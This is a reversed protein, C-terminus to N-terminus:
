FEVENIIQSVCNNDSLWLAAYFLAMQPCLYANCFGWWKKEAPKTRFIFFIPFHWLARECQADLVDFEYLSGFLVKSM